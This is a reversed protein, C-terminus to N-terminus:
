DLDDALASIRARWQEMQTAHLFEIRFNPRDLDRTWIDLHYVTERLKKDKDFVTPMAIALRPM